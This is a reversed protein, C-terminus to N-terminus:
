PRVHEIAKACDMLLDGAPGKKVIVGQEGCNQIATKLQTTTKNGESHDSVAKIIQGGYFVAAILAILGAAGAIEQKWGTFAVNQQHSQQSQQRSIRNSAIPSYSVASRQVSGIM